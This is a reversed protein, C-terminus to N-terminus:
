ARKLTGKITAGRQIAITSYGLKGDVVARSGVVLDKCEIEGSLCGEVNVSDARVSGDVLGTAGISLTQVTLNGKITGDVTLSGGAKMDGTFEFGERIISPELSVPITGERRQLTELIRTSVTSSPKVPAPTSGARVISPKQLGPASQGGQASARDQAEDPNRMPRYDSPKSEIKKGFM